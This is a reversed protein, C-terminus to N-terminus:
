LNIRCSIIYSSIHEVTLKFINIEELMHHWSAQYMNVSRETFYTAEIKLTPSCFSTEDGEGNESLFRDRTWSRWAFELSTGPNSWSQDFPQYRHVLSCPTVVYFPVVKMTATTLIEV